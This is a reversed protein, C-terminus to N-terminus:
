RTSSHGGARLPDASGGDCGDLSALRAFPTKMFLVRRPGLAAQAAKPRAVATTSGSAPQPLWPEAGGATGLRLWLADPPWASPPAAPPARALASCAAAWHRRWCPM